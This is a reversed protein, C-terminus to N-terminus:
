FLLIFYFSVFLVCDLERGRRMIWVLVLFSYNSLWIYLERIQISNLENIRSFFVDGWIKVVCSLNMSILTRSNLLITTVVFEM